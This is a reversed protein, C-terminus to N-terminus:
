TLHTISTLRTFFNDKSYIIHLTVMVRSLPNRRQFTSPYRPLSLSTMIKLLGTAHIVSPAKRALSQSTTMEWFSIVLVSMPLPMERQKRANLLLLNSVYCVYVLLCVSECVCHCVSSFCAVEYNLSIGSGILVCQLPIMYARPVSSPHCVHKKWLM